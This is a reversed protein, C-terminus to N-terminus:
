HGYREACYDLWAYRIEVSLVLAKFAAQTAKCPAM